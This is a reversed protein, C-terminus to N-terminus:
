RWGHGGCATASGTPVASTATSLWISTSASPSVAGGTTGARSTGSTSERGRTCTPVADGAAAPQGTARGPAPDDLGLFSFVRGFCWRPRGGHGRLARGDSRASSGRRRRVDRSRRDLAPDAPPAPLREVEADRLGGRNSTTARDRVAVVSVARAPVPDHDPQSAIEGAAVPMDSGLVEVVGSFLTRRSETTVLPSRETLHAGRVFAFRGAQQRASPKPYVTQLHQGEDEPVGTGAFASVDPHAAITRAM